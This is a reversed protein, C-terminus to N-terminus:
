RTITIWPVSLTVPSSDYNVENLSEEHHVQIIAIRDRRVQWLEPLELDLGDRVQGISSLEYGALKLYM